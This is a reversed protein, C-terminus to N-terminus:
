QLPHFRDSAYKLIEGDTTVFTLNEVTAQAILARDFPNKHISPLTSIESAHEPRFV